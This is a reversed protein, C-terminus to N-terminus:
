ALVTQVDTQVFARRTEAPSSRPWAVVSYASTMSPAATIASSTTPQAVLPPPAPLIPWRKSRTMSETVLLSHVAVTVFPLRCDLECQAQRQQEHEQEADDLEDHDDAILQGHLECRALCCTSCGDSCGRGRCRLRAALRATLRRGSITAVPTDISVTVTVTLWTVCVSTGKIPASRGSKVTLAVAVM